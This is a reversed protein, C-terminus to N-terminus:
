RILDKANAQPVTVLVVTDPSKGNWGAVDRKIKETKRILYQVADDLTDIRFVEVM